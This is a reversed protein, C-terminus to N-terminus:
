VERRGRGPCFVESDWVQREESMETMEEQELEETLEDLEQMGIEGAEAETMVVLEEAEAKEDPEM